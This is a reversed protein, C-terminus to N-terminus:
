MAETDDDDPIQNLDLGLFTQNLVPYLNVGFFIFYEPQGEFIDDGEPEINLDIGTFEM